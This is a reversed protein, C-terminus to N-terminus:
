REFGILRRGQSDSSTKKGNARERQEKAEVAEVGEQMPDKAVFHGIPKLSELHQM